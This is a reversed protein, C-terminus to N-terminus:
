LFPPRMETVDRMRITSMSCDSMGVSSMVPIITKCASFHTVVRRCQAPHQISADGLTVARERSANMTRSYRSFFLAPKRLANESWGSCIVLPMDGNFFM